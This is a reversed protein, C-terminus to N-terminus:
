IHTENKTAFLSMKSLSPLKKTPHSVAINRTPNKKMTPDITHLIYRETLPKKSKSSFLGIGSGFEKNYFFPFIDLDVM